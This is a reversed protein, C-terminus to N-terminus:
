TADAKFRRSSAVLRTLLPRFPRLLIRLILTFVPRSNRMMSRAYEDAEREQEAVLGGEIHGSVHHGVEHYFTFETDVRQWWLKVGGATSDPWTLIIGSFFLNYLGLYDLEPCSRIIDIRTVHDLSLGKTKSWTEVNRIAASRDGIDSAVFVPIKNAVHTAPEDLIRQSLVDLTKMHMPHLNCQRLREIENEFASTDLEDLISLLVGFYKALPGRPNESWAPSALKAQVQSISSAGGQLIERWADRVTEVHDTSVGRLLREIEPRTKENM